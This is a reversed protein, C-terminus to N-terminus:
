VGRHSRGWQLQKFMPHSAAYAPHLLEVATNEASTRVHYGAGRHRAESSARGLRATAAQEIEKAKVLDESDTISGFWYDDLDGLFGPRRM